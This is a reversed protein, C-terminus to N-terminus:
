NQPLHYGLVNVTTRYLSKGATIYLVNAQEGRAFTVNRPTDSLPIHAMEEGSPSYVTIGQQRQTRDRNHDQVTAWVNGATDVAIGDPRRLPKFAILLERFTAAGAEDLDYSRINAQDKVDAPGTDAVYLTKQDPSIAIGNPKEVDTIVQHVSGDTDIRYVAMVHHVPEDGMYRPDTLYIRGREDVVLNNPSNFPLDKYTGAVMLARGSKLDTRTIRRGGTDAGEAAVLQCDADFVMGNAMGSPLRIITTEGTSPDHVWIASVLTGLPTQSAKQYTPTIDTFYVRGDSCVAPGETFGVQHSNGDFVREVKAGPVVFESDEEPTGETETSMVGVISIASVAVLFRHLQRYVRETM